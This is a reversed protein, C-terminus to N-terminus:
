NQSYFRNSEGSDQIKLIDLFIFKPERVLDRRLTAEALNPIAINNRTLRYENTHQQLLSKEQFPITSLYESIFLVNNDIKERVYLQTSLGAYIFMHM